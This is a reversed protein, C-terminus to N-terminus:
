DEKNQGEKKYRYDYGYNYGYNYSYGYGKNENIGNLVYVMNKLRKSESLGVTFPIINKETHNARVACITADALHSVILTDSVLITPALDVIIVDYLTRAEELLIKFNGNALLHAPNPPISGSFLVQHTSHKKFINTCFSKWDLSSDNLFDSLGDVNKQLNTYTHLQPNRLDAGILLVNNNMSAMALSMNLSIFTKGEGKVTSTCFIVQGLVSKSLVYNVNTSLVRFSEALTSLDNPNSFLTNVGSKILPIEALIPINKAYKVLDLKNHIKTDLLCISYIIGFPVLLGLLLAGFYVMRPKPSIPLSDSFGYEVIKLTPETVALNVAAEERKQLLFIFLTEKISQQREIARLQQEKKPIGSVKSQFIQNRNSLQDRTLILQTVYDSISININAKLDRLNAELQLVTPNNVGASSILKQRQLVLTNFEQLLTNITNNEVGVNTPLLTTSAKSNLLSQKILDSVAIQNELQFLNENSQARQKLSEIGDSSVDVLRNKMKFNKKYNEISDLESSLNAFRQDVFDITRKWILQRDLVDDKNFVDILTNLILESILVNQGIINLKLLDSQDGIPEIRISNKLGLVAWKKPVLLVEFSRGMLQNKNFESSWKLEFPLQHKSKRTDFEPFSFEIGKVKNMINFGSEEVSILFQNSETISDLSQTLEFDFPLKVLSQSKLRGQEFFQACLSLENVVRNLIPYSTLIEMENELNINSRTVILASTPLELGNKDDLIKIKAHTNYQKPTYRLYLFGGILFTILSFVFWPWHILYKFFEEKINFAHIDETELYPQKSNQM